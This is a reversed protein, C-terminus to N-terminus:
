VLWKVAVPSVMQILSLPSVSLTRKAFSFDKALDVSQARERWHYTVVDHEEGGWGRKYRRLNEQSLSSMGLSFLPVGTQSAQEIAHAILLTGIEFSEYAASNAGWAYCWQTEDKLIIIGGAFTGTTEDIAAYGHAGRPGQGLGLLQEFLSFPQPIMQHKDRYARLMTQYFRKLTETDNFKQAVIGVDHAVKVVSRLKTRHRARMRALVADYGGCLSVLTEVGDVSESFGLEDAVNSPLRYHLKVRAATRPGASSAAAKVAAAIDAGCDRVVPQFNFPALMIRDTGPRTVRCGTIAEGNISLGLPYPKCGYVCQLIAIMPPALYLKARAPLQDNLTTTACVDTM